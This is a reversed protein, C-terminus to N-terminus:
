VFDLELKDNVFSKFNNLVSLAHSNFEALMDAEDVPINNITSGLFRSYTLTSYDKTADVTQFGASYKNGSTVNYSFTADNFSKYDIASIQISASSGVSSSFTEIYHISGSDYYTFSKINNYASSIRVTTYSSYQTTGTTISYYYKKIRERVVKDLDFVVNVNKSFITENDSSDKFSYEVKNQGEKSFKYIDGTVVISAKATYNDSYDKIFDSLGYTFGMYYTVETNQTYSPATTDVVNVFRDIQKIQEGDENYILYNIEYKGLKTTDVSGKTVVKYKEPCAVGEDKYSSNVEITQEIDGNISIDGKGTCSIMCIVLSCVLIIVVFYSFKKKM